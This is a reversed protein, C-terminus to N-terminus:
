KLLTMKKSETKGNSTLRYFYVGSSMTNGRADRGDWQVDNAGAPRVEDVLTNVLAGGADYIALTVHERAALTFSISTTPNFPNPVNQALRAALPTDGAATPAKVRFKGLKTYWRGDESGYTGSTPTGRPGAYENYVWFDSEGTPCLSLGSYDGWRNRTGSFFRKYYDTGAQLTGTASMTGAADTALRTTYYAGCYMNANCASFGMAVNLDCDVNIAPFFTHTGAGLDEGGVHGQETLSIAPNTTNMHWWHATAQNADAGAAPVVTACTYLQNNRWVASLARRDNTEIAYVSGLQPADPQAVAANEVDGAFVYQQTFIPAGLPDTVEVVQVYENTGDTLGSYSVLFTGLPQGTSGNGLTGWMHSPQTTTAVGVAYPDHVTYAISNDPGNYTPTKNIIWLRVGAYSGPFTFMNNTIYIAKDDIGLGPYDAWTDSGSINLKSDIAHYWFGGNPDSTKSVAVLIRSQNSANTPTAWRELMIVIFRDAYQDYIVKPDYGVTGLSTGPGPNPAPASLGTAFFGKLDDIHEPTDAIGVKPRWEIIVNGINMVHDEGAACIPDPPIFISGSNYTANSNFNFCEIAPGSLLPANMPPLQGKVPKTPAADVTGPIVASAPVGSGVSPTPDAYPRIEGAFVPAALWSVTLAVALAHLAPFRM